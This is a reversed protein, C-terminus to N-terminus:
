SDAAAGSIDPAVGLAAEGQGAEPSGTPDATVPPDTAAQKARADDAAMYERAMTILRSSVEEDSAILSLRLCIDAQRRFYEASPM